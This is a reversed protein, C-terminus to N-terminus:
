VFTQSSGQSGRWVVGQGGLLYLFGVPSHLLILCACQPLLPVGKKLSRGGLYESPLDANM